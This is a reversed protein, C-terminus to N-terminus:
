CHLVNTCDDKQLTVYDIRENLGCILEEFHKREVNTEIASTHKKFTENKCVEKSLTAPKKKSTRVFTM